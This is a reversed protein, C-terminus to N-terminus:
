ATRKNVKIISHMFIPSIKRVPSHPFWARFNTAFDIPEKTIHNAKRKLFVQLKQLRTKSLKNADRSSLWGESELRSTATHMDFVASFTQEIEEFYQIGFLTQISVYNQQLIVLIGAEGEFDQAGSLVNSIKQLLTLVEEYTTDKTCEAKQLPSASAYAVLMALDKLLCQFMEHCHEQSRREGLYLDKENNETTCNGCMKGMGGTIVGVGKGDAIFWHLKLNTCAAYPFNGGCTHQNMEHFDLYALSLLRLDAVSLSDPWHFDDPLMGKFLASAQQKIDNTLVVKPGQLAQTEGCSMDWFRLLKTYPQQESPNLFASQFMTASCFRIRGGTVSHGCVSTGDLFELTELDDIPVLRGDPLQRPSVLNGAGHALEVAQRFIDPIFYFRGGNSPQGLRRVKVQQNDSEFKKIDSLVAVAPSQVPFEVIWTRFEKAALSDAKPQMSNTDLSISKIISEEETTVEEPLLDSVLQAIDYSQQWIPVQSLRVSWEKAVLTGDQTLYEKQVAFEFPFSRYKQRLVTSEKRIHELAPLQIGSIMGPILKVRKLKHNIRTIKFPVGELTFSHHALKAATHTDELHVVFSHQLYGNRHTNITFQIDKAPIKSELLHEGLLDRWHSVEKKIDDSAPKLLRARTTFLPIVSGNNAQTDPMARVCMMHNAPYSEDTGFRTITFQEKKSFCILMRLTSYASYSHSASWAIALAVSKIHAEMKAKFTRLGDLFRKDGFAKM